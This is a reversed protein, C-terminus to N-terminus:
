PTDLLGKGTAEFVRPNPLKVRVFPNSLSKPLIAEGGTEKAIQKALRRYIPILKHHGAEFKIFGPRIQEIHRRAENM